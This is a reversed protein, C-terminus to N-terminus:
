PAGLNRVITVYNVQPFVTRRLLRVRSVEIVGHNIMSKKRAVALITRGAAPEAEDTEHERM